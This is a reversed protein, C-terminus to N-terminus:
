LISSVSPPAEPLMRRASLRTTLEAALREGIREMSDSVGHDKMQSSALGPYGCPDIRTFPELDMDVNLALGHYTGHNAVRLGIAGIKALSGDGRTVYVGPMGPEAHAGIGYGALTAVLAAEIRRVLERVGFDRRRLDLLLYCVIQGLGHYTVQGGRDTKVVPIDGPALVHAPKGALGLTFVPAHEALWIEDRTDVTRERAFAQMARWTPEYEVRGLKRLLPAPDAASEAASVGM